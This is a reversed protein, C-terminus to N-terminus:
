DQSDFVRVQKWTEKNRAIFELHRPATQYVDHAARDEFVTHLAVDFDHDNVPRALDPVVTGCGFFILGPHNNLYDNCDDLLKQTNEPTPDNLSFFVNHALM